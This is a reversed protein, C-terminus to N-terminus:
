HRAFPCKLMNRALSFQVASGGILPFLRHAVAEGTATNTDVLSSSSVNVRALTLEPPSWRMRKWRGDGGVEPSDVREMVALKLLLCWVAKSKLSERYLGTAVKSGTRVIRKM